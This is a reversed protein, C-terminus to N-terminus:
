KLFNLDKLLTKTSDANILSLRGGNKQDAEFKKNNITFTGNDRLIRSQKFYYVYGDILHFGEDVKLGTNLDMYYTYTVGKSVLECWGTKMVGTDKDFYRNNDGFDKWGKYLTGNDNFYYTKGDIVQLGILYYGTDKDLYYTYTSKEYAVDIWGTQMIGTDKDFYRKDKWGYTYITGSTNIMYKNNNITLLEFDDPNTGRVAYGTKTDFYVYRDISTNVQDKTLYVLGTKISGDELYYRFDGDYYRLYQYKGKENYTGYEMCGGTGFDYLKGDIEQIGTLFAKKKADYYFMDTKRLVGDAGQIEIFGGTTLSNAKKVSGKYININKGSVTFIIDTSEDGPSLCIGYKNAQRRCSYSRRYLVGDGADLLEPLRDNQVFSYKPAVAAVFDEANSTSAVGHHSLKMIDANLKTKGYKKLLANEEDFEIDGASLYKVTGCTVMATLSYNNTYAAEKQAKTGKFQSVKYEGVPGIIEIKADGITFSSGTKLYTIKSKYNKEIKPILTKYIFNYSPGEKAYKKDPLYVTGIKYTKALEELNGYHDIHLHSIYIDFEKIKLKNLYAKIAKLSAPAGTDMLLYKGKSQLLVVDGAEAEGDELSEKIDGGSQYIAHLTMEAPESENAALVPVSPIALIFCLCVVICTTFINKMKISEM